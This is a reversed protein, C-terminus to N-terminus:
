TLPSAYNSPIGPMRCPRQLGPVQRSSDPSIPRRPLMIALGPMLLGTQCWRPLWDRTRHLKRSARPVRRHVVVEEARSSSHYEERHSSSDGQDTPNHVM